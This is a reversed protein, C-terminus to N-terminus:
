QNRNHQKSKIHIENFQQELVDMLTDRPDILWEKKADKAVENPQNETYVRVCNETRNIANTRKEKQNRKDEARRVLAQEGARSM